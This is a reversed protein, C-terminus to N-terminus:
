NETQLYRSLKLASHESCEGRYETDIIIGNGDVDSFINDFGVDFPVEAILELLENYTAISLPNSHPVIKQAFILLEYRTSYFEIRVKLCSPMFVFINVYDDIIKSANNGIIYEGTEKDRVVLYKIPLNVHSLKKQKIISLLAAYTFLRGINKKMIYKSDLELIEANPLFNKLISRANDLLSPLQDIHVKAEYQYIIGAKGEARSKIIASAEDWDKDKWEVFPRFCFYNAGTIIKYKEFLKKINQSDILEEAPVHLLTNAKWQYITILSNNTIKSLKKYLIDLQECESLSEYGSFINAFISLSFIFFLHKTKSLYNEM